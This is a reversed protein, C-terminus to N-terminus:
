GSEEKAREEPSGRKFRSQWDVDREEPHGFALSFVLMIMSWGILTFVAISSPSDSTFGIAGILINIAGLVATAIGFGSPLLDSKYIPYAIALQALGFLVWGGDVFGVIVLGTLAAVGIAGGQLRNYIQVFESIRALNAWFIAYIGLAIASFVIGIGSGVIDIEADAVDNISTDSLKFAIGIFMPILAIASAWDMVIRM